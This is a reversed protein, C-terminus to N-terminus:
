FSTKDQKFFDNLLKLINKNEIQSFVSDGSQKIIAIYRYRIECYVCFLM